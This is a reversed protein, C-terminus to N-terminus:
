EIFQFALSCTRQNILHLAARLPADIPRPRREGASFSASTEAMFSPSERREIVSAAFAAAGRAGASASPLQLSVHGYEPMDSQENAASKESEDNITM